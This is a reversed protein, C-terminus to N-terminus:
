GGSEVNGSLQGLEGKLAAIGTRQILSGMAAAMEVKAVSVIKESTEAVRRSAWNAANVPAEVHKRALSRIDGALAEAAKNSLGKTERVKAILADIDAKFGAGHDPAAEAKADAVIQELPTTVEDPVTEMSVGMVCDLTCPVGGAVNMNTIAEAWQYASLNIEVIPLGRYFYHETHLDQDILRNARYVRVQIFGPLNHSLAGVLRCSGTVRSIEVLGFSEHSEQLERSRGGSAVTHPIREVPVSDTAEQVALIAQEVADHCSRAKDRAGGGYSWASNKESTLDCLQAKANELKKLIVSLLENNM